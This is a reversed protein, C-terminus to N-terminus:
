EGAGAAATMQATVFAEFAAADTFAGTYSVGNVLVTPTGTVKEVDSNPIPGAIARQTSAAVWGSYTQDTICSAVATSTVGAGAVLSTLQADTKGNSNETPQDAFMATNFALFNNPDDNAVCAAANAARTAYKTGSSLRDLISIPHIEVTANGATVWNTIQEGNTTEFNGCIPCLYDVYMVINATNTLATQDTAIPDADAALAVTTDASVTTGDSGLLIGDSAMNAPGPAAPATVNNVIVLTVIAVVALLGVGIGGRLFLRRRKDRKVQEARMLRAHERAEERRDKKPSRAPGSTSM